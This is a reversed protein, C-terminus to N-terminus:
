MVELFVGKEPTAGEPVDPDQLAREPLQRLAPPSFDICNSLVEVYNIRQQLMNRDIADDWGTWEHVSLVQQLM